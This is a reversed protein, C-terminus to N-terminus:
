KKRKVFRSLRLGDLIGQIFDNRGGNINQLESHHSQSTSNDSPPPPTVPIKNEEDEFLNNFSEAM